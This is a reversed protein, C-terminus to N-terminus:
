VKAMEELINNRLFLALIERCARNSHCKMTILRDNHYVGGFKPRHPFQSSRVVVIHSTILRVAGRTFAGFDPSELCSTYTIQYDGIVARKSTTTGGTGSSRSGNKTVYDRAKAFFTEREQQNLKKVKSGM